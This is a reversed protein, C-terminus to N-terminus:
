VLGDYAGGDLQLNQGTLYGSSAACLFACAAGVEEARGLRGAPITAAIEAYAARPAEPKPPPPTAAAVVPAAPPAAAAPTGAVEPILAHLRLTRGALAAVSVAERLEADSSIQILDGEHDRYEFRLESRVSQDLCFRAAVLM